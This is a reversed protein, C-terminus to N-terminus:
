VFLLMTIYYETSLKKTSIKEYFYSMRHNLYLIIYNISEM